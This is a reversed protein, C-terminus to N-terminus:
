KHVGGVCLSDSFEAKQKAASLMQHKRSKNKAAYQIKDSNSKLKQVTQGLFLLFGLSTIDMKRRGGHRINLAVKELALHDIRLGLFGSVM